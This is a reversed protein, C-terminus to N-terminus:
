TTGSSSSAATYGPVFSYSLIHEVVVRPLLVHLRRGDHMLDPVLALEDIPVVRAHVHHRVDQVVARRDELAYAAVLRPAAGGDEAQALVHLAEEVRRLNVPHLM